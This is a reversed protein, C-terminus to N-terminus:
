AGSDHWARRLAVRNVKDLTSRPLDGVIRIASPVKFDALLLAAHASLEAVTVGSGARVIVAAAVRQGLVRDPLGIAAAELVAPHLLLAREVEAASVNEGGRRIVDGARELYFVVGDEDRRVLDGTHLWVGDAENSLAQRTAADDDLYGAMLDRGPIGGVQLEGPEGDQAPRDDNMVRIAYGESARGIAGFEGEGPRGVIPVGVTETMGYWGITPVGFRQEIERHRMSCGILRLRHTREGPAPPNDLLLRIMSGVLSAVTARHESVWALWRSRSFREMLLVSAGAAIAPLLSYTQANIHYMPACVAHRDDAGLATSKVMRRAAICYAAHTLRVGKPRSTTGSTYLIAADDGPHAADALPGPHDVALRELPIAGPADGGVSLHLRLSPVGTLAAAHRGLEVPAACLAVARAHDLAYRLEDPASRLNTAVMTAGLRALAMWLCLFDASNALHVGVREGPVIGAERLGRGLADVRAGLDRWGFRAVAGDAAIFVVAEGNGGRAIQADWLRGITEDDAAM